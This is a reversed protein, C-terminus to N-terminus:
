LSNLIISANRCSGLRINAASSNIKFSAFGGCDSGSSKRGRSVFYSYYFSYTKGKESLEVNVDPKEKKDTKGHLYDTTTDLIDAIISLQEESLPSNHLKKDKLYGDNQGLQRSLYTFSRHKEKSLEKIRDLEVM